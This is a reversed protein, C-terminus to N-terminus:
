TRPPMVSNALRTFTIKMEYVRGNRRFHAALWRRRRRTFIRSCLTGGPALVRGFERM